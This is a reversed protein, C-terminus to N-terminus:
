FRPAIEDNGHGGRTLVCVFLCRYVFARSCIIFVDEIITRTHTNTQTHALWVPLAFKIFFLIYRDCGDNMRRSRFIWVFLVLSLVADCRLCVHRTMSVCIAAKFNYLTCVIKLITGNVPHEDNSKNELKLVIKSISRREAFGSEM